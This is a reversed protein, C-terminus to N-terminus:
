NQEIPQIMNKNAIAVMSLVYDSDLALALVKNSIHLIGLDPTNSRMLRLYYEKTTEFNRAFYPEINRELETELVVGREELYERLREYKEIKGAVKSQIFDTALQKYDNLTPSLIIMSKEGISGILLDCMEKFMELFSLYGPATEYSYANPSEFDIAMSVLGDQKVFVAKFVETNIASFNKVTSIAFNEYTNPIGFKLLQEDLIRLCLLFYTLLLSVNDAFPSKNDNNAPFIYNQKNDNYYKKARTLPLKAILQELTEEQIKRNSNPGALFKALKKILTLGSKIIRYLENFEPGGVLIDAEKIVSRRREEEEKKDNQVKIREQYLKNIVCLIKLCGILRNENHSVLLKISEEATLQESESEKKPIEPINPDSEFKYEDLEKEIFEKLKSDTSCIEVLRDKFWSTPYDLGMPSELSVLNSFENGRYLTDYGEETNRILERVKTLILDLTESAIKGGDYKRIVTSLFLCHDSVRYVEALSTTKEEEKHKQAQKELVAIKELKQISRVKEAAVRELEAKLKSLADFLNILFTNIISDNKINSFKETQVDEKMQETDFTLQEITKELGPISSFVRILENFNEAENKNFISTKDFRTLRDIENIYTDICEENLGLTEVNEFLVRYIQEELIESNTKVEPDTTREPNQETNTEAESKKDETIEPHQRPKQFSTKEEVLASLESEKKYDGNDIRHIVGEQEARDVGPNREGEIGKKSNGDKKKGRKSEVEGNDSGYTSRTTPESNSNTSNTTKVKDSRKYNEQGGNSISPAVISYCKEGYWRSFHGTPNQNNPNVWQAAFSFGQTIKPTILYRGSEIRIIHAAGTSMYQNLTDLDKEELGYKSVLVLLRPINLQTTTFELQEAESFQGFKGNLVEVIGNALSISFMNEPIESSNLLGFIYGMNRITQPLKNQHISDEVFNLYNIEDPSLDEGSGRKNLLNNYVSPRNSYERGQVLEALTMALIDPFCSNGYGAQKFTVDGYVSLFLKSVNNETEPFVFREVKSGLLGNYLLREIWEMRDLSSTVEANLNTIEGPFGGIYKIFSPNKLINPNELLLKSLREYYKESPVGPIHLIQDGRKPPTLKRKPFLFIPVKDWSSQYKRNKTSNPEQNEKSTAIEEGRESQLVWAENLADVYGGSSKANEVMVRANEILDQLFSQFYKITDASLELFGFNILNSNKSESLEKELIRIRATSSSLIRSVPILSHALSELEVLNIDVKPSETVLLITESYNKLYNIFNGIIEFTEAIQPIETEIEGEFNYHNTIGVIDIGGSAFQTLKELKGALGSKDKLKFHIEFNSLNESNKPVKDVNEQNRIKKVLYDLALVKKQQHIIRSDSVTKDFIELKLQEKISKKFLNIKAVWKETSEGNNRQIQNIGDAYENSNFVFEVADIFSDINTDPALKAELIILEVPPLDIKIKFSNPEYCTSNIEYIINSRSVKVEIRVLKTQDSSDEVQLTIIRSADIKAIKAIKM